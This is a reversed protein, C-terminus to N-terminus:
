CIDKVSPSEPIAWQYQIRSLEQTPLGWRRYTPSSTVILTEPHSFVFKINKHPNVFLNLTSPENTGLATDSVLKRYPVFGCKEQVRKSRNNYDFYSCLLFDYDLVDFNANM